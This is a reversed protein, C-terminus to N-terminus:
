LVPYAQCRCGGAEGPHGHFNPLGALPPADWHQLTGELLQHLERVHDDLMTTWLYGTAGARRAIREVVRAHEQLVSSAIQAAGSVLAVARDHAEAIAERVSETLQEFWGNSVTTPAERAIRAAPTGALAGAVGRRAARVVAAAAQTLAIRWRAGFPPRPSADLRSRNGLAGATDHTALEARLAAM